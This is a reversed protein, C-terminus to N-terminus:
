DLEFLRTGVLRLRQTPRTMAVYLAGVGRTSSELIDNPEVILVSDFELGKSEQPTLVATPRSLGVAGRGVLQGFRRDLEAYAAAVLPAPVIVALNGRSDLEREAAVMGAVVDFLEDKGVVISEVPWESDRV